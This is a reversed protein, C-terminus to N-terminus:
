LMIYAHQIRSTHTIYAHHIRSTHTIYTYHIRTIMKEESMKAALNLYSTILKMWQKESNYKLAANFMTKPLDVVLGGRCEPAANFM